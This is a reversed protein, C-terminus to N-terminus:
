EQLIKQVRKEYEELVPGCGTAHAFPLRAAVGKSMSRGGEFIYVASVAKIGIARNVHGAMELKQKELAENDIEYRRNVPAPRQLFYQLLAEAVRPARQCVLPTNFDRPVILIPTMPRMSTTFAGPSTQAPALIHKLQLIPTSKKEELPETKAAAPSVFLCFVSLAMFLHKM